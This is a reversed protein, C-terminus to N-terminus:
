ILFGDRQLGLGGRPCVNGSKSVAMFASGRRNSPDSFKIM